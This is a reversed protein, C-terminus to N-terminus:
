VCAGSMFCMSFVHWVSAVCVMYCELFVVGCVGVCYVHVVHVGCILRVLLMCGCVTCMVCAVYMVCVEHVM